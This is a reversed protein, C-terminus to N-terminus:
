RWGPKPQLSVCFISLILLRVRTSLLRSPDRGKQNSAESLRLADLAETM